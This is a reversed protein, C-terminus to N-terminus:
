MDQKLPQFYRYYDPVIEAKVGYRECIDIISELLMSHRPSITIIAKDV